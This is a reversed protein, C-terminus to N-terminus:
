DHCCLYRPLRGRRSLALILTLALHHCHLPFLYAGGGHMVYAESRVAFRSGSRKAKYKVM